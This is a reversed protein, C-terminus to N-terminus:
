YAYIIEGNWSFTFDWLALFQKQHDVELGMSMQFQVYLLRLLYLM